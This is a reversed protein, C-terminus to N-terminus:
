YVYQKVFVFAIADPLNGFLGNDMNMLHKCSISFQIQSANQGGGLNVSEIIIQGHKRTDSSTRGELDGTHIGNEVLKELSIEYVGLCDHKSLNENIIYGTNKKEYKDVDYVEFRVM